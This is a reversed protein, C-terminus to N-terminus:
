PHSDPPAGPARVPWDELEDDQDEAPEAIQPPPAPQGNPKEKGVPASGDPQDPGDPGAGDQANIDSGNGRRVGPGSPSPSSGAWWSASGAWAPQAQDTRSQAPDRPAQAPDVNLGDPGPSSAYAASNADSNTEPGSPGCPGSPEKASNFSNEEAGTGPETSHDDSDPSLYRAFADDFHRRLYGRAKQGTNRWRREDEPADIVGRLHDRLFYPTIQRGRYAVSWDQSPESLALLGAVLEDTTMRDRTGFVERIDALLPVVDGVARTVGNIAMAAERARQPWDCGVLEAIRLLPRWNDRDRFGIGTPVHADLLSTQDQAWRAFKRGCALLVPSTGDVLPQLKALEEPLARRLVIAISRSQLTEELKGITTYAHAHWASFMKVEWGGDPKPVLRPINASRRRHSANIIGVLEPNRKSKLFSGAEDILLTPRIHDVVRFVLAPTLSAAAMPREVLHMLLELLTTKGAIPSVAQIALRPSVQLIILDHHVFFTHLGWLAVTDRQERTAVVHKALEDSAESLVDAIDRVPEPWPEPGLDPQKEADADNGLAKRKAEVAADLTTKRVGLRKLRKATEARELDYDLVNRIGALRQAEGDPSLTVPQAAQVLARLAEIGGSQLLSNADENLPTTTVRVAGGALVLHDLGRILSKTAPTDQPDGDRVVIIDGRIPPLRHLRGIGPVGLIASRPFAKHLSLANEVGECVLTIAAFADDDEGETDPAPSPKIRFLGETRKEQDLEIWFVRRQPSLSSKRGDPALYGLQVGIVTGDARTLKAALAAEGLRANPLHAVLGSLYPTTLGRQELNRASPTGDVPLAQEVIQQAWVANREVRAAAAAESAHDLKFQGMGPHDRLWALAFRRVVAPDEESLHAILTLAGYGRHDAEFDIWGGDAYITLSGKNGLRVEDGNAAVPAGPRLATAIEPLWTTLRRHDADSLGYQGLKSVPM